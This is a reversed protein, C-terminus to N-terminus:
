KESCTTCDPNKDPHFQLSLARYAKRIDAQTASPSVGMVDYPNVDNADRQMYPNYSDEGMRLLIVFFIIIVTYFIAKYDEMKRGFDIEEGSSKKKKKLDDNSPKKDNSNNMFLGFILM